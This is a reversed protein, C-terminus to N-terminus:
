PLVQLSSRERLPCLGDRPPDLPRASPAYLKTHLDCLTLGGCASPSRCTVRTQTVAKSGPTGYPSGLTLHTSEPCRKAPVDKPTRLFPYRTGTRALVSLLDNLAAEVCYSAVLNAM